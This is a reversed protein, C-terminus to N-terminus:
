LLARAFRFLISLEVWEHAGGGHVVDETGVDTLLSAIRAGKFARRQKGKFSTTCDLLTVDCVREMSHQAM